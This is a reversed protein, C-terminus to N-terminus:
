APRRAEEVLVLAESLSHAVGAVGGFAQVTAIWQKQPPSLRGKPGKVEISLFRGHPAVIGILDASGIALGSKIRGSKKLVDIARTAEGRALLALVSPVNVASLEVTNNRWLRVDPLAGVHERIQSQIHSENLITAPPKIKPM